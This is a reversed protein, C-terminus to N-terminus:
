ALSKSSLHHDTICENKGHAFACAVRAPTTNSTVETSQTQVSASAIERSTTVTRPVIGLLVRDEVMAQLGVRLHLPDLAFELDDIANVAMPQPILLNAQRFARLDKPNQHDAVRKGKTDPHLQVVREGLLEFGEEILRAARATVPDDVATTRGVRRDKFVEEQDMFPQRQGRIEDDQIIIERVDLIIVLVTLNGVEVPLSPGQPHM